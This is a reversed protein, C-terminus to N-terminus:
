SLSYGLKVLLNVADKNKMFEDIRKQHRPDKWKGISRSHLNQVSGGWHKSKIVSTKKIWSQSDISFDEELFESLKKMTEDFSFILDEYRLTYFNPHVNFSLGFEVDSVWREISVWYENPTHKPHKSTVVDRGDRVVHIMKVNKGFYDLIKDFYKINKPTKECYRNAQQPIKHLVLERYLRDLRDPIFLNKEKVWSTFAYTQRQIAHIAPYADLISLLLTTGSRPCAGIIIPNRGFHKKEIKKGLNILVPNIAKKFINNM